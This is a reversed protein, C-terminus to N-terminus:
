LLWSSLFAGKSHSIFGSSFRLSVWKKKFPCGADESLQAWSNKEVLAKQIFECNCYPHDIESHIKLLTENFKLTPCMNKKIKRYSRDWVIWRWCARLLLESSISAGHHRQFYFLTIGATACTQLINWLSAIFPTSTDTVDLNSYM